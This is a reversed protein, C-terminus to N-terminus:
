YFTPVNFTDGTDHVWQKLRDILMKREERYKSNFAVNDQEYPDDALNFMLWSQNAFCIYKWGDRTVLGRYPQNISDPHGTPVVSQLYQSDPEFSKPRSALRQGSLDHGEMWAPTELGCLGLATPAIDVASFLIESRGTRHGDYFGESGTIIMPIRVSEEYPNTKLFQGHSGHMDGHDAFIMVHTNDLMNNRALEDIVRGINADWCEQQAYYGALEQRAREAITIPQLAVPGNRPVNAFLPVNPRLQLQEANYRTMYQPPAIYPDHVPEVSLVAFFPKETTTGQEAKRDRIYKLLLDTSCDTEYGPLRYHFSDKGEGGHVWTDWPSNNNEYGIWTQFGGRREPPVIHLAARGEKEHFGDIHWKGFYGTHYGADNFLNAITKQGTPLPYEHGPVMHHPYRGTLMTGRFPSCLPFGSRAQTFNIGSRALRDLVPTHANPDGNVGLAQARWQDAILWIVNQRSSKPAASQANAALSAAALTQSSSVLFQRRNM